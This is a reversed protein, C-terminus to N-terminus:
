KNPEDEKKQTIEKAMRQTTTYGLEWNHIEKALQLDWEAVKLNTLLEIIEENYEENGVVKAIVWEYDHEYFREELAKKAYFQKLAHDAEAVKKIMDLVQESKLM